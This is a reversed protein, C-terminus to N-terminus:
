AQPPRATRVPRTKTKRGNDDTKKLEALARARAQECEYKPKERMCQRYRKAIAREATTRQQAASLTSGGSHPVTTSPALANQPRDLPTSAGSLTPRVQHTAAAQRIPQPAPASQVIRPEVSRRVQRLPDAGPMADKGAVPRPAGGGAPSSARARLRAYSANRVAVCDTGRTSRCAEFEDLVEALAPAYRPSIGEPGQHFSVLEEPVEGFQVRLRTLHMRKQIEFSSTFDTVSSAMRPKASESRDREPKADPPESSGLLNEGCARRLDTEWPLTLQRGDDCRVVLQDQFVDPAVEVRYKGEVIRYGHAPAAILVIALSCASFLLPHM